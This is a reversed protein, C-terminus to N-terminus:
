TTLVLLSCGGLLRVMLDPSMAFLAERPIRALRNKLSSAPLDRFATTYCHDVVTYGCDRLTALATSATFHHLHGVSGRLYLMQDRLISLVNIDLPIHFVTCRAKAKLSKLFGLYDEVHEVVDMCLMCDFRVDEDLLNKMEFSVRDTRRADCLAFAQPSLEYGVFTSSPLRTSLHRLIEGAGCGVEAVSCPTLNNRELIKAVQRAKWESDEVHWSPNRQFYDGNVYQEAYGKLSGSTNPMTETYNGCPVRAVEESM